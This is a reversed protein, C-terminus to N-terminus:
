YTTAADVAGTRERAAALMAQGAALVSLDGRVRIRGATLAEAPTLTGQSLAVADDYAVAITVEADEDEDTGGGGLPGVAMALSGGDATLVLRVDGEPGGRVEQAVTFSGDQAALGAEPGPEPVVVGDLAANVADVWEQSLFRAV